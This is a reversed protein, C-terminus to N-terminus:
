GAVPLTLVLRAGPAAPDAPAVALEGGGDRALGRSLALGLGIGPVGDGPPRNGREFPTFAAAVDGAAIGPGHDRVSIEVGGGRRAAAVEIRRDPASAAYKCANDVLNALVQAVSDPHALVPVGAADGLDVRLDMRAEEARRRLAQLSREVLEGATTREPRRPVRGEEVRAFVLVNEVLAALRASETKLTELYVQRQAPDTVMGDALMEAYLRFTTLPTRLEHTVSSAFRARRVGDALSARLTAAAAAFAVAVAIWAAALGTRTPTLGAPRAGASPPAVLAAPATALVLGSADDAVADEAVPRLDAGPLVDTVEALLRERLRPWDLVFGQVFASAAADAVDTRRLFVLAPRGGAEIWLPVLPGVGRPVVGRGVDADFLVQGDSQATQVAVQVNQSARFRQARDGGNDGFGARVDELDPAAFNGVQARAQAAALAPEHRVVHARLGEEGRRGLEEVLAEDEPLRPTRTVAFVGLITLLRVRVVDDDFADALGFASRGSVDVTFPQGTERALLPALASDLRWLAVREVEGRRHAAEAARQSAELDLAERTVWAMAAAVLGAAVGLAIWRGRASRTM